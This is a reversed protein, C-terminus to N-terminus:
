IIFRDFSSYQRNNNFNSGIRKEKKKKEKEKKKKKKYSRRSCFFSFRSRSRLSVRLTEDHEDDRLFLVEKM